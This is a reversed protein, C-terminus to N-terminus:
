KITKKPNFRPFLIGVNVMSQSLSFENDEYGYDILREEEATWQLRKDKKVIGGLGYQFRVDGTIYFGGIRLKVGAMGTLALTVPKYFDITNVPQGIVAEDVDTDGSFSSKALVNVTPGFAVFPIFTEAINDPDKLILYQALFNLQIKSQQITHTLSGSKKADDNLGEETSLPSANNYVFSYTTYFLEPNLVLRKVFGNQSDGQKAMDKEFSMGFHIGIKSNYEGKGQAFAWMNHQKIVNIHNTNFGFKLGFRYVPKTRFKKYLNRFEVPDVEASPVFFPDTHLLSIMSKDAEAPEELYIYSLTLIKYAEIMETETFEQGTGDYCGQLLTPLEHLRGQDYVSRATRLIQTCNLQSQTQAYVSVSCFFSLGIFGSYIIKNM